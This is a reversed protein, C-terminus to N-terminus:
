RLRLTLVGSTAHEEDEAHDLVALAFLVEENGSLDADDAHGTSLARSLEVTWWGDAWAGKARVDAASGSPEQPVYQPLRNTQTPGSPAPLSKTVSTGADEPRTIHLKRGDPLTEVHHRGGHGTFSYVHSRDMAFGAPDTRGAKWHWVDWVAELPSTMDATFEGSIPFAVALVDEREPGVAFTWKRDAAFPQQTWLKHERDETPDRWRVLLHLTGAHVVARVRSEVSATATRLKVELEEAREWVPDDARGDLVPAADAAAAVLIRRESVADPSPAACAGAVTAALALLRIPSM